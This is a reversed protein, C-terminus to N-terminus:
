DDINRVKKCYDFYKRSGEDFSIRPKWGLFKKLKGNSYCNGKWDASWRKRNFALPLKGGSWKSFKEWIFCLSYSIIKPIYISTFHRVNKKYLKLFQRSTPLEDDVINFVEGDVSKKLGGLVVAEACNDVYTLPIRNSDGLHLFIGFIDIGIRGTISTSGPGYVAGPRMIVYPTNHKRGYELVLEEQKVKAFCYAEGKLEPHSEIECTEDLLAGPKLGANSYVTFSSVNLFRKLSKHKLTAELLNRTTIVSNTYANAFSKGTMGAALHYIVSVDRSAMECDEYSALNGTFIQIKSDGYSEIIRNLADLNSSHRVFCRLNGFGYRLLTEVVRSGIFGNAGTILISESRDIIFDNKNM